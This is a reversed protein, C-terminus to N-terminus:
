QPRLDLRTEGQGRVGGREAPWWHELLGDDKQSRVDSVGGSPIPLFGGNGGHTDASKWPDEMSLTHSGTSTGSGCHPGQTRGSLCPTVSLLLSPWPLIPSLHKSPVSYHCLTLELFCDSTPCLPEHRDWGKPLDSTCPPGRCM